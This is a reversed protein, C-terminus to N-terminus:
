KKIPRDTLLSTGALASAEDPFTEMFKALRTLAFIEIYQPRLGFAILQCGKQRAQALLGILLGIGASNIYEVQTFNLLIVTPNRSEAEAYAANLAHEAGSNLDGWLDITAMGPQYRVKAEFHQLAM